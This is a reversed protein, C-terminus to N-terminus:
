KSESPIQLFSHVVALNSADGTATHTTVACSPLLAPCCSRQRPTHSQLLSGVYSEASHQKKLAALRRDIELEAAEVSKERELM